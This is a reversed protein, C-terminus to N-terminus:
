KGIRKLELERTKIVNYGYDQLSHSVRCRYRGEDQYETSDAVFFLQDSAAGVTEWEEFEPDYQFLICSIYM